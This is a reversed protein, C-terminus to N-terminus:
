RWRNKEPTDLGRRCSGWYPSGWGQCQAVLDSLHSGLNPYKLDKKESVQLQDEEERDAHVAPVIMSLTLMLVFIACMAVLRVSPNRQMMGVENEEEGLTSVSFM